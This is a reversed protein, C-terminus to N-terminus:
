APPPSTTQDPDALATLIRGSWWRRPGYPDPGRRRLDVVRQQWGLAAAIDGRRAHAQALADIADLTRLDDEGHSSELERVLLELERPDDIMPLSRVGDRADIREAWAPFRIAIASMEMESLARPYEVYRPKLADVLPRRSRLEGTEMTAIVLFPSLRGQMAELTGPTLGDNGLFRQLGDLWVISLDLRPVREVSLRALAPGDRPVVLPRDPYLRLIAEFASRTHGSYAPGTLVVVGGLPLVSDLEADADRQVYPGAFRHRDVGVVAAEHRRAERPPWYRVLRALADGRAAAQNPDAGEPPDDGLLRLAWVLREGAQAFVRVFDSFEGSISFDDGEYTSKLAAKEFRVDPITLEILDMAQPAIVFDITLHFDGKELAREFLVALLGTFGEAALAWSGLASEDLVGDEVLRGVWYSGDAPTGKGHSAGIEHYAAEAMGRVTDFAEASLLDGAGFNEPHMTGREGEPSMAQVHFQLAVANLFNAYATLREDITWQRHMRYVEGAATVLEVQGEPPAAARKPRAGLALRANGSPTRLELVVPDSEPVHLPEMSEELVPSLDLGVETLQAGIWKRPPDSPMVERLWDLAEPPLDDRILDYLGPVHLTARLMVKWASDVQLVARPMRPAARVVWRSLRESRVPDGLMALLIEDFVKGLKAFDAKPQLALYTLWEEAEITPAIGEHATSLVDWATDLAAPDEALLGRLERQARPALVIAAISRTEVLPSFWLDAESGAEMQPYLRLRMERLVRPEIRAALSVAKGLSLVDDSLRLEAVSNV